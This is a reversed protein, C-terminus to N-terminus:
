PSHLGLAEYGGSEVPASLASKLQQGDEVSVGQGGQGGSPGGSERPGKVRNFGAFFGKLTLRPSAM